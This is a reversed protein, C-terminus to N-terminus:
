AIAQVAHRISHWEADLWEAVVERRDDARAAPFAIGRTPVSAGLEVLLPRLTTEVALTHQPSGITLLPVATVGHLGNTPYRDLFAKLLGSYAAKYTPSAVIVLDSAAVRALLDDVTRDGFDFLSGAVEALDITEGVTADGRAALQAAVEEAALRTTSAPKPNGVLVTIVPM